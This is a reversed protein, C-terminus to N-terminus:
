SGSNTLLAPITHAVIRFDNELSWTEIYRIDLRVMEDFSLSNRGSIQWLGTIGPPVALRRRHQETYNAVEYPLPPRPGVTSMDGRLVNWFQPIEDFSTKRLIRGVPTVRPDSVIKHVTSDDTGTRGHIWDSSFSQHISSNTNVYMSRFKLLTFEEGNLGVRSQRHLVPGSSTVRIAIAALLILPSLALLVVSALAVDFVRKAVQDVGVLHTDPIGLVPIGNFVDVDASEVLLDYTSPVVKWRADQRMCRGIVDLTTQRDASPIAIIVEDIEFDDVISELASMGGLVQMTQGVDQGDEFEVFGILEYFGPRASVSQGIRRAVDGTGVILLRQAAALSAVARDHIFRYALFGFGVYLVALPYLVAVTVRSYSIFGFLFSAAITAGLAVGVAGMIRLWPTQERISDRHLGLIRMAPIFAIGMLMTPIIHTTWAGTMNFGEAIGGHRLWVVTAAAVVVAVFGVATRYDRQRFLYQVYIM